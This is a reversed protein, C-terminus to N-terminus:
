LARDKLQRTFHRLTDIDKIAPAAEFRSNLDIGAFHPNDLAAVRGADELGIGGSLIFPLPGAYASLVSWDFQIGNGGPLKGKTDLLFYDSVTEYARCREIDPLTAVAISKILRIGPNVAALQSRLVSMFGPTEHGHFQVIDLGFAEARDLIFSADADVFVGVRKCSSPLYAPLDSVYRASGPWFIFGMWDVGLAEVARINAADRMGCVKIIM